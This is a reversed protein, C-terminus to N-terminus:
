NGGITLLMELSPVFWYNGTEAATFDLLRDYKGPPVGIFMNDLMQQLVWVAASYGIFFCGFEDESPDGFPMNDRVIDHQTGNVIVTTLQKHPKQDAPAQDPLEINDPKTRGFVKEQQDTPLQNWKDLNVSYKQTLLYSGGAGNPDISGNVRTAPDILSGVPNSTGDVFGQLARADFYRFGTVKDQVKVSGNFQDILQREFEFPLDPRDSRIHYFIDGPTAPAYQSGNIAEFPRLEAPRPLGTLQDWANAGIGVTVALNHSWSRVAVNRTLDNTAGIVNAAISSANFLPTSAALVLTLFTAYATGGNVTQILDGPPIM